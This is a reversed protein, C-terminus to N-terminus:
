FYGERKRIEMAAAQDFDIARTQRESTRTVLMEEILSELDAAKSRVAGSLPYCGLSRFRVSEMRPKEGEQLPLRGDDVLILMGEREVVPRPKAFYLPVVPIKERHIYLWVDLETWNSL